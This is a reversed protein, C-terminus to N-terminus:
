TAHSAANLGGKFTRGKDSCSAEIIGCVPTMRILAYYGKAGAEVKERIRGFAERAKKERGEFLVTAGKADHREVKWRM